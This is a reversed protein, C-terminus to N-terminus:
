EQRQDITVGFLRCGHMSLLGSKTGRGCGGNELVVDNIDLVSFNALDGGWFPPKAANGSDVSGESNNHWGAEYLGDVQEKVARWGM